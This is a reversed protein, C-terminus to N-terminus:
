IEQSIDKKKEWNLLWHGRPRRPGNTTCVGLTGREGWTCKKRKGGASLNTNDGSRRQQGAKFYQAGGGVKQRNGQGTGRKQQFSLSTGRRQIQAGNPGRPPCPANLKGWYRTEKTPGGQQVVTGKEASVEVTEISLFLSNKHQKKKDRSETVVGATARHTSHLDGGNRDEL